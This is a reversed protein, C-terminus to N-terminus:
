LHPKSKAWAPRLWLGGIKFKMGDNPHCARGVVGLKKRNLHCRAFKNGVGIRRIEAEWM